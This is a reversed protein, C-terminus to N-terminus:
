EASASCAENLYRKFEQVSRMTGNPPFVDLRGCSEDNNTENAGMVGDGAAAGSGADNDNVGDGTHKM